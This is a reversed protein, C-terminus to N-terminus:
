VPPATPDPTPHPGTAALIPAVMAARDASDHPEFHYGSTPLGSGFLLNVLPSSTM